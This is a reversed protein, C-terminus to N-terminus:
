VKKSVVAENWEGRRLGKGALSVREQKGALSKQQSLKSIM